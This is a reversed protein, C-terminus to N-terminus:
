DKSFEPCIGKYVCYDCLGSVSAPFERCENIENILGITARRVLKLQDYTKKVSVEKNFKLMNWLLMVDKAEPYQQKVWLAYMALQRDKKAEEDTMMKSNTKYDCVFYTNGKQFLKDIRISYTNSGLKLFNNTEIGLIEEDFPTYEDFYTELYERGLKKYDKETFGSKTIQIKETYMKDWTATYYTVLEKKNLNDKYLKALAQHVLNGMFMEITTPVDVKVFDIYRFKYALKCNEFLKIKSHSYNM